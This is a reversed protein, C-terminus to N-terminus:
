CGTLRSLARPDHTSGIAAYLFARSLHLQPSKAAPPLLFDAGLANPNPRTKREKIAYPRGPRHQNSRLQPGAQRIITEMLGVLAYIFFVITRSVPIAPSNRSAYAVGVIAASSSAPLFTVTVPIPLHALHAKFSVSLQWFTM